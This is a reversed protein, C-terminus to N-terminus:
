QRGLSFARSIVRLHGWPLGMPNKMPMHYRMCTWFRSNPPASKLGRWTVIPLVRLAKRVLDPLSEPEQFPCFKVLILKLTQDDLALSVAAQLEFVSPGNVYNPSLIFVGRRSKKIISVIDETYVGGPAVDRELLCLTYGYKNELVEPFLKLALCDESVPSAPESESASGKAYSIFADFEKKDGLTEDKDQCTRCLLVVEIWYAFLLVGAALAGALAAVTGLLVYLFVVGKRGRLQLPQTSNGLSNQAFCIFTKHLDSQTVRELHVTRQIVEAEVTPKVSGGEKTPIELEQGSDKSYWRLVPKFHEEFGFRATCNLTLPKGLEVELTDQAPELIDPKLTTNRVITKVQVVARVTRSGAGDAQMYDCAYTGEHYDYIVALPLPNSRQASLLRGNQYWTMEPSPTGGQCGLSPCHIADTSGLRLYRTRPVPRACSLDAQPQVELVMKVCCAEDRRSRMRPRCIYSGAHSREASLFRLATKDLLLHSQNSTIEKLAGGERPQLYWQADSLGELGHCPPRAPGQTPSLPHRHYSRPKRAEALDCFLVFEEASEASYMWLFNKISCGSINFGKTREGTVFWLFIWGWSLM